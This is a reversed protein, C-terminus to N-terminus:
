LGAIFIAKAILLYLITILNISSLTINILNLKYKNSIIYERISFLLNRTSLFGAYMVLVFFLVIFTIEKMSMETQQGIGSKDLKSTFLYVVLCSILVCVICKSLLRKFEEQDNRTEFEVDVM